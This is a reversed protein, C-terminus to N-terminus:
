LGILAVIMIERCGFYVAAAREPCVVLHMASVIRDASSWIQIATRLGIAANM